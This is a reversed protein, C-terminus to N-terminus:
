FHEKKNKLEDIHHIPCVSLCKQCDICKHRNITPQLFGEKDTSFSIAGVPCVDGCANCGCCEQTTIIGEM